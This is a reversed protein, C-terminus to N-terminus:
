ALVHDDPVRYTEGVINVLIFLLFDTMDDTGDEARNL